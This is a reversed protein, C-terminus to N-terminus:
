QKYIYELKVVEGTQENVTERLDYFHERLFIGDETTQKWGVRDAPALTFISGDYPGGIFPIFYQKTRDYSTLTM